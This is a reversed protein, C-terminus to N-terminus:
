AIDQAQLKSNHELLANDKLQYASPWEVCNLQRQHVSSRQGYRWCTFRLCPNTQRTTGLVSRIRYRKGYKPAGPLETRQTQEIISVVM